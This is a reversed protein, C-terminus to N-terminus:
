GPHRAPTMGAPQRLFHRFEMSACEGGFPRRRASSSGGHRSEGFARSGTKCLGARRPVAQGMDRALRRRRESVLGNRLRKALRNGAMARPPRDHQRLLAPRQGILLEVPLHVREGGPQEREAEALAVTDADPRGVPEFPDQGLEGGGAEARDQDIDVGGVPRELEFVRQIGDPAPRKDRRFGELRRAIDVHKALQGRFEFGALRAPEARRLQRMEFDRNRHAVVGSGPQEAELIHDPQAPRLLRRPQVREGCREARVVRDIDLEGGASGARGLAGREGVAVDDVIRAEDGVADPQGLLVGQANRHREVVTEAHHHAHQAADRLARRHHKRALAEIRRLRQIRHGLGAAGREVAHRGHEDGHQLLGSAPM